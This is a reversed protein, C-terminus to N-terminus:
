PSPSCTGLSNLHAIQEGNLAVKFFQINDMLGRFPWRPSTAGPDCGIRLADANEILNVTHRRYKYWVGGSTTWESFTNKQCALAGNVYVRMLDGGFTAAVNVWEKPVIPNETVCEVMENVHGRDACSWDVCGSIYDCYWCTEYFRRYIVYKIKGEKTVYLAYTAREPPGKSLLTAQEAGSAVGEWNVRAAITHEYGTSVSPHSAVDIFRTRQDLRQNFLFVQEGELDITLNTGPDDGFMVGDNAIGNPVETSWIDRAMFAGDATEYYSGDWWATLSVQGGDLCLPALPNDDTSDSQDDGDTDKLFPDTGLHSETLDSLFDGDLDSFRPDPFVDYPIRGAVAVQWGGKSEEYDNLGDGDTDTNRKDTGLLYEERDYIGDGDSDQLYVLSVQQGNKLEVEDFHEVAGVEFQAGTGAVTWFGLIAPNIEERCVAERQLEEQKSTPQEDDCKFESVNKVRCLVTRGTPGSDPDVQECTEYDLGIIESLAKQMTVGRGSGGENRVVNTAVMYREVNGNGYDIVIVGTRQGVNEGLVAYNMTEQVGWEDLKFISYSGVQFLLATPNKVLARMIEAGIHEREIAMTFDAGPGLVFGNEPWESADPSMTGIMTFDGRGELRYAIVRLDKVKFSLDSLNVVKMAVSLRGDDFSVNEEEWTEYNQQSEQVSSKKWSSSTDQFYGHHFKTDTTLKASFSPPWQGTGAETESHLSVTNEISMKTSVTDTEVKEEEDRLLQQQKGATGTQYDVQLEILPNGYLNLSLQPLEALCPNRGGTVIEEYDDAGDGDTDKMAPSTKFLNVEAGDSIGDGDTDRQLPRSFYQHIEMLDSLNDGDTDPSRPDTGNGMEEGDMVGDGDTDDENPDSTVDRCLETGDDLVMRVTWGYQEDTDSIGDGDSDEALIPVTGAFTAHYGTDPTLLPNGARDQVGAVLLRYTVGSQSSTTLTVSTKDANLAAGTVALQAQWDHVDCLQPRSIKYRAADQAAPGMPNSFIVLVTNNGTSLVDVVDLAEENEPIPTTIKLPGTGEGTVEQEVTEPAQCGVLMLAVVMMIDLLVVLRRVSQM